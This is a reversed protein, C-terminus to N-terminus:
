QPVGALARTIRDRLVMRKQRLHRDMEPGIPQSGDEARLIRRNVENYDEVLRAFGEDATPVSSLDSPMDANEETPEDHPSESAPPDDNPPKTM